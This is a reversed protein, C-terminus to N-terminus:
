LRNEPCIILDGKKDNTPNVNGKKTGAKNKINDHENNHM